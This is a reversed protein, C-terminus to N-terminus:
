SIKLIYGAAEVISTFKVPEEKGRSQLKQWENEGNGTLVLIRHSKPIDLSEGLGLDSLKDGIIFSKESPFEFDILGAKPKRCACKDDPSHPCYVSEDPLSDPDEQELLKLLQSNVAEVDSPKMMGRGIGSQNSVIVLKFGKRKLDGLAKAAGSILELGEPDKIYGTDINITGDRDLFVTAQNSM